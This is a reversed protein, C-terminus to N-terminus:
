HASNKILSDIQKKVTEFNYGEDVIILQCNNEKCKKRKAKDREITKELAEQGGFFDIAEYHQAGQYEVGINLEPIYIDLHQRGLWNPSGHQVVEYDLFTDAIKYFLETESIWGEGIKPLGVSERYLDEAEKLILRCQNFIAKEVVHTIGPNNLHAQSDDINKYHKYEEQSLYFQKYYEPDYDSKVTESKTKRIYDMFNRRVTKHSEIPAVYPKGKNMFLEFFKKGKEKEYTALHKDAFPKIKDLNDQGFETLHGYGVLRIILEADFLSRQLKQEYDIITQIGIYGYEYRLLWASKYDGHKEKLEILQAQTYNKTKPYYKQLNNFHEQLESMNEPRSNENFLDYFLIFSYNDNGVLDIFEGNKFHQKYAKYFQQQEYNANELERASYIYKHQWSPVGNPYTVLGLEEKPVISKKTNSDNWYRVKGKVTVKSLDIKDKLRKPLFLDGGVYTLRGLNEIATDRLSFKGGVEKLAGLDIINSYRLSVEGGIKELEGLSTLRSFVTRSSIWLDGTIEKLNGLSQLSSDSIGLFGNIREVGNLVTLHEGRVIIDRKITGNKIFREIDTQTLIDAPDYTM